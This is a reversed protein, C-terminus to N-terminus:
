TNDVVFKVPGERTRTADVPFIAIRFLMQHARTVRYLAIHRSTMCNHLTKSRALRCACDSTKLQPREHYAALQGTELLNGRATM